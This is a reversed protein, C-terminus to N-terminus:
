IKWVGNEMLLVKKKSDTEAEVVLSEDGFFLEHHKEKLSYPNVTNFHNSSATDDSVKGLDTAEPYYNGLSIHCGTNKDLAM